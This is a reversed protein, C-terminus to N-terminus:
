EGKKVIQAFECAALWGRWEIATYRHVYDGYENRRKDHDLIFRREFQQRLESETYLKKVQNSM